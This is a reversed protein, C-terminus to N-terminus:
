DLGDPDGGPLPKKDAAHQRELEDTARERALFDAWLPELKKRQEETLAAKARERLEALRKEHTEGTTKAPPIKKVVDPAMAKIKDGQERTVGVWNLPFVADFYLRYAQWAPRQAPTLVKEEVLDLTRKEARWKARSELERLQKQEAAPIEPQRARIRALNDQHRQEAGREIPNVVADYNDRLVDRLTEKQQDTLDPVAKMVRGALGISYNSLTSFSVKKPAAPAPAPQQAFTPAAVFLLAVFSVVVSRSM